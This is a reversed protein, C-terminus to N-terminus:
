EISRRCWGWGSFIGQGGCNMPSMAPFFEYNGLAKCKGYGITESGTPCANGFGGTDNAFIRYTQAYALPSYLVSGAFCAFGFAGVAFGKIKHSFQM